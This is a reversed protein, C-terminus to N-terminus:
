FKDDCRDGYHPWHVVKSTGRTFAVVSSPGNILNITRACLSLRYSKQHWSSTNPWNPGKHKMFLATTSM